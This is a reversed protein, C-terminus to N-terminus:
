VCGTCAPGVIRGNVVNTAAPTIVTCRCIRQLDASGADMRNHVVWVQASRTLADLQAQFLEPKFVADFIGPLVVKPHASGTVIRLLTAM